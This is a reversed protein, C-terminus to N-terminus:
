VSKTFLMLAGLLMQVLSLMSAIVLMWVLPARRTTRRTIIIPPVTAITLWIIYAVASFILNALNTAPLVFALPIFFIMTVGGFLLASEDIRNLVGAYNTVILGIIPWPAMVILTLPIWLLLPARKVATM